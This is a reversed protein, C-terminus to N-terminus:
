TNHTYTFTITTYTCHQLADYQAIITYLTRM